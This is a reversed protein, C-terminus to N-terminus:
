NEKCVLFLHIGPLVFGFVGVGGGVGGWFFLFFFQGHNLVHLNLKVPVLHKPSNHGEEAEFSYVNQM